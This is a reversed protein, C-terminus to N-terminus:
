DFTKESENITVDSTVIEKGAFNFEGQDELLKGEVGADSELTDPEPPQHDESEVPDITELEIEVDQPDELQESPKAPQKNLNKSLIALITSFIILGIGIISWVSPIEKLLLIQYVLAFVIDLYRLIATKTSDLMQGGTNLGTQGLFGIIGVVCLLAWTQWDTPIVFTSRAIVM